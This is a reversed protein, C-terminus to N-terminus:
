RTFQCNVAIETQLKDTLVLQGPFGKRSPTVTTKVQLMLGEGVFEKPAGPRRAQRENVNVRTVLISDQEVRHYVSAVLYGNPESAADFVRDINIVVADFMPADAEQCTLYHMVSLDAASATNATALVLIGLIALYINKM